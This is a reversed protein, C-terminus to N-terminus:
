PELIQFGQAETVEYKSWKGFLGDGQWSNWIVKGDSIEYGEKGCSVLLLPLLTWFLCSRLSSKMMPRCLGCFRERVFLPIMKQIPNGEHRSSDLDGM